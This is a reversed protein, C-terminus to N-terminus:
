LEFSLPLSKGSFVSLSHPVVSAKKKRERGKGGKSTAIDPFMLSHCAFTAASRSRLACLCAANAAFFPFAVVPDLGSVVGVVTVAVLDGAPTVAVAVVVDVGAVCVARGLWERENEVVVAVDFSRSAMRARVCDHLRCGAVATSFLVGDVLVDVVVVLVAVVGGGCSGGDTTADVVVGVLDVVGDDEDVPVFCTLKELSVVSSAFFFLVVLVVLLVSRPLMVIPAALVFPGVGAGTTTTAGTTALVFRM